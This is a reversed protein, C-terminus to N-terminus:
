RTTERVERTRDLTPFFRLPVSTLCLLSSLFRSSLSCSVSWNLVRRLGTQTWIQGEVGETQYKRGCPEEGLSTGLHDQLSGPSSPSTSTVRTETKKIVKSPTERKEPSGQGGQTGSM